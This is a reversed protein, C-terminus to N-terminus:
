NGFINNQKRKIIYESVYGDGMYYLKLYLPSVIFSNKNGQQYFLTHSGPVIYLQIIKNESIKSPEKKSISGDPVILASKIQM